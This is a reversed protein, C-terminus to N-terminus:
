GFINKNKKSAYRNKIIEENHPLLTIIPLRLSNTSSQSQKALFRLFILFFFISRFIKTTFIFASINFDM